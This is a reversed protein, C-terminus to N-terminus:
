FTVRTAALRHMSQCGILEFLLSDNDEVESDVVALDRRTFLFLVGSRLFSGM